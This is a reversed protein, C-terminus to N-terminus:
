RFAQQWNVIVNLVPESAADIHNILFRQSDNSVSYFYTGTGPHFSNVRVEFLPTSGATDFVPTAGFEAPRAVKVAVAMLTYKGAPGTLYFLERGDRSWRPESAQATGFPASIRWKGAGSPFPRVYVEYTGSENSLYAIWRGDPSIQGFSEDFETQLFKVPAANATRSGAVRLYWLDAGTKPDIETYVLL